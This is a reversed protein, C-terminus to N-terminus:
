VLVGVGKSTSKKEGEEEDKDQRSQIKYKTAFDNIFKTKEQLQKTLGEVLKLIGDRNTKVAPLVEAVTREVLVGGVLRFCKRGPELKEITNIVLTHENAEMELESIKSVLQSHEQKMQKFKALIQEEDM